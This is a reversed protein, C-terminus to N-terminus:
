QLCSVPHLRDSILGFAPSVRVYEADRVLAVIGDEPVNAGISCAPLDFGGPATSQIAVYLAGEAEARAGVYPRVTIKSVGTRALFAAVTRNADEPDSYACVVRLAMEADRQSIDAIDWNQSSPLKAGGCLSDHDSSCALGGFCIVLWFAAACIRAPVGRISVPALDM